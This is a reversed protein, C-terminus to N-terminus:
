GELNEVYARREYSPSVWAHELAALAVRLPNGGGSTLHAGATEARSAATAMLTKLVNPRPDPQEDATDSMCVETTSTTSTTSTRACGYDVGPAGADSTTGPEASTVRPRAPPTGLQVHSERADACSEHWLPCRCRTM